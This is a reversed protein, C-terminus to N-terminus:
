SVKEIKFAAHDVLGDVVVGKKAFYNSVMNAFNPGCWYVFKVFKVILAFTGVVM